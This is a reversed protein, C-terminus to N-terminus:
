YGPNQDLDPNTSVATIPIPFLLRTEDSQPKYLWPDLFKGFRILDQRRWFEIYLERGREDIIDDDTLGALPTAGRLDRLENIMILAQGTNGSRHLAEAKMLWADAYRFFIQNSPGVGPEGGEPIPPYKILRIGTAEGHGTLEEPMERTFFLPEGGRTELAYASDKDLATGYQQGYLMGRGLGNDPVYGRRIEQGSEPANTDEPGEFLSYFESTTAFGNWGGGSLIFSHNYHLTNAIRPNAGNSGTILYISESSAEPTEFMGFFDEQLSFGEATIADVDEIVQQMDAAEPSSNATAGNLLIHKNLYFKARLHLASAKSARRLVDAGAGPGTSPLSNIYSDSLDEEILGILEAVTHEAGEDRKYVIPTADVPESPDRDPVKGWFDLILFRALARFYRAEAEEKASPNSLLIQNAAFTFENLQNWSNLIQPHSSNWSHQHLQRWVGGDGWDTGRTPVLQADGTLAMLAYTNEQSHLYEGFQNYMGSLRSGVNVNSFDQEVIESDIEEVELDTCSFATVALTTLLINKFNKM